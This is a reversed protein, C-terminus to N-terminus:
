TFQYLVSSNIISLSIIERSGEYESAIVSQHRWLTLTQGMLNSRIRHRKVGGVVGGVKGISARGISAGGGMGTPAM